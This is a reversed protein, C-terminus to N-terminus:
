REGFNGSPSLIRIPLDRNAVAENGSYDAALIRLTYDGPVIKTTDLVGDSAIGDRFTTTVRYLFRTSRSGYVPIGSGDAYILRPAEPDAPQRDFRLMEQVPLEPGSGKVPLLGYGLRFLGLRRRPENGNVQDWADVVIRVPTGVLLRGSARGKLVVGDLGVLQVGGRRITPPVTDLHHPIRFRLPNVEEGPAGINLHVHYFRNVTGIAEGTRFRAGRKVRVRQLTGAPDTSFVFRPDALPEDRRGRGARV